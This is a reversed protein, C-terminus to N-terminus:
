EQESPGFCQPYNTSNYSQGQIAVSYRSACTCWTASDTSFNGWNTGVSNFGTGQSNCQNCTDSKIEGPDCIQSSKNVPTSEGQYSGALGSKTEVNVRTVPQFIYDYCLNRAADYSETFKHILWGKQGNHIADPDAYVIDDCFYKICSQNTSETRETDCVGTNPNIANHYIVAVDDECKAENQCQSGSKPTVINESEPSNQYDYTTGESAHPNMVTRAYQVGYVAAVLGVVLLILLVIQGVGKQSDSFFRSM